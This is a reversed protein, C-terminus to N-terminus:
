VRIIWNKRYFWYAVAYFLLVHSLAYLLSAEPAPAIPEFVNRWIASRLSQDGVRILGLIRSFLGALVYLAIANLGYIAFPKTYRRWGQVDVLWYTCGFVAFALGSTFVAYSTTWIMKNIPM